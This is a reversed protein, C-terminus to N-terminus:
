HFPCVRFFAGKVGGNTEGIENTYSGLAISSSGPEETVAQSVAAVGTGVISM